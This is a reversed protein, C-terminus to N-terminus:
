CVMLRVGVLEIRAHDLGSHLDKIVGRGGRMKNKNGRRV